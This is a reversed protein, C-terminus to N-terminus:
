SMFLAVSATSLFLFSSLTTLPSFVFILLFSTEDLSCSHPYLSFTPTQQRDQSSLHATTDHQSLTNFPTTMVDYVIDLMNYLRFFYYYCCYCCYCWCQGAHKLTPTSESCCRGIM